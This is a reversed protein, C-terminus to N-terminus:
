IVHVVLQSSLALSGARFVLWETGSDHSRTIPSRRNGLNNSFIGSLSRLLEVLGHFHPNEFFLHLTAFQGLDNVSLMFIHLVEWSNLEWLVDNGNRINHIGTRICIDDDEVNGVLEEMHSHHTVNGTHRQTSGQFVNDGHNGTENFSESPSVVGLGGDHTNSKDLHDLKCVHEKIVSFRGSESM